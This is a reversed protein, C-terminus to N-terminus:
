SLEPANVITGLQFMCCVSKFVSTLSASPMSQGEAAQRESIGAAGTRCINSDIQYLHEFSFASRTLRAFVAYSMSTSASCWMSAHSPLPLHQTMKCTSCLLARRAPKCSVGAPGFRSPAIVTLYWCLAVSHNRNTQQQDDAADGTSQM